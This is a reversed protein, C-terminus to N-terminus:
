RLLSVTDIRATRRTALYCATLATLVVFIAAGAITPPDLPSVGFLVGALV